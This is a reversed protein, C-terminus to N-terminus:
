ELDPQEVEAVYLRVAALDYEPSRRPGGLENRHEPM